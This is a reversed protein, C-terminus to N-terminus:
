IKLVWLHFRQPTTETRLTGRPARHIFSNQTFRRSNSVKTLTQHTRAMLWKIWPIKSDSSITKLSHEVIDLPKALLYRAISLHGLWLTDVGM